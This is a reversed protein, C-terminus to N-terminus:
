GPRKERESDALQISYRSLSYHQITNKQDAGKNADQQRMPNDQVFNIRPDAGTVDLRNHGGSSVLGEPSGAEM